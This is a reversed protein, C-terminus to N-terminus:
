HFMDRSPSFPLPCSFLLFFGSSFTENAKSMGLMPDSENQGASFVSNLAVLIHLIWISEPPTSLDLSYFSICAFDEVLHEGVSRSVLWGSENQLTAPYSSSHLLM